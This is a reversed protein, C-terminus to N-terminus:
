DGIEGEGVKINFPKCYYLLYKYQNLSMDGGITYTHAGEFVQVAGIEFAGQISNPNNSLYVYLGPLASTAKYDEFIEILLDMGEKKMQFSGRLEYNSTTKIAGQRINDDPNQVVTEEDVVILKNVSLPINGELLVTASVSAQGKSMGTATGQDDVQLVGPESSAWTAERSEEIGINNTFLLQFTYSDGVALTDLPNTIRLEEPVTDYIIDDGICGSLLVIAWLLPFNIKKM